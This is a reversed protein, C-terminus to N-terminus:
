FDINYKFPRLVVDEIGDVKAKPFAKRMIQFAGNVDANILIGKNSKFLGRHVRRNIPSLHKLKRQYNGNQKCPKENDLFSTQSTYSENIKIVNIGAENAKYEIMHIIRSHPIGIFNQNNRKGMNSNQKMKKNYGIIITNADCSLAYKVISRSAKHAFQNLKTERWYSLKNMAKSYSKSQGYQVHKKKLEAIKKNYFQNVSKAGKGNIILSKIGVNNVCTFANNLGPDISVYRENDSKLQKKPVDYIVRVKFKDNAIPTFTVQKIRHNKTEDDLKLKLNLKKIVLYDGKVKANQNTAYFTHRKGKKLYGPMNPRVMGFKKPNAKYAKLAQIWAYWMNTTEKLTQQAIQVLKLSRYLMNQKNQYAEKFYKDLWNYNVYNKKFFHQRIQYLSANYLKNAQESVYDLTGAEDKIIYTSVRKNISEDKKKPM